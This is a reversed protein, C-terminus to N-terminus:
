FGGVVVLHHNSQWIVVIDVHLSSALLTLSTATGRFPHFYLHIIAHTFRNRNAYNFIWFPKSAILSFALQKIMESVGQGRAPQQSTWDLIYDLNVQGVIVTTSDGTYNYCAHHRSKMLCPLASCPLLKSWIVKHIIIIFLLCSSSSNAIEKGQKCILCSWCGSLLCIVMMCTGDFLDKRREEARQDMVSLEMSSVSGASLSWKWKFVFCMDLAYFHKQAASSGFLDTVVFVRAAVSQAREQIKIRPGRIRIQNKYSFWSNLM